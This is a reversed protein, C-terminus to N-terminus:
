VAAIPITKRGKPKDYDATKIEEERMAFYEKIGMDQMPVSWSLDARSSPAFYTHGKVANIYFSYEGQHLIAYDKETFFRRVNMQQEGLNDSCVVEFGNNLIKYFNVYWWARAQQHEPLDFAQENFGFKKEGLVLVKKVGFERLRLVDEIPDIGVITHVITSHYTRLKEPVKHFTNIDRLSIGVGSLYGKEVLEWVKNTTERNGSVTLQNVTANVILGRNSAWIIFDEIEDTMENIGMALEIPTGLPIESLKEKLLAYDADDGNTRASEHCFECTAKGTKPNFGLPCRTSLRLDINFPFEPKLEDDDSIILRSGQSTSKHVDIVVVANGNRYIKPEKFNRLYGLFTKGTRASLSALAEKKSIVM